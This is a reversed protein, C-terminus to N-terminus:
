TNQSSGKKNDDKWILNDTHYMDRRKIVMEVAFYSKDINKQLNRDTALFLRAQKYYVLYSTCGSWAQIKELKKPSVSDTPINQKNICHMVSKSQNPIIHHSTQKIHLTFIHLNHIRHHHHDNNYNDQGVLRMVKYTTANTTTSVSNIFSTIHPPQHRHRNVVQNKPIVSLSSSFHIM